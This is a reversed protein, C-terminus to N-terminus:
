EKSNDDRFDAERENVLEYRERDRKNEQENRSPVKQDFVM